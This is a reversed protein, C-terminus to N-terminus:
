GNVLITELQKLREQRLHTDLNGLFADLMPRISIQWLIQVPGDKKFLKLRKVQELRQFHAYIDIAEAFFSHGIQWSEGLGEMDKIAENMAQANEVLKQLEDAKITLGYANMKHQLIQELQKADFGYFLWVFRRRLAFDIRELSFDIENMTGIVYLNEPVCLEFDGIPLHITENRNELASFVEGFVRSLDVRNIEDLILVHPSSDQRVKDLLKLFYGKEAVTQGAKIQIGAVFDEYTYNPHLQLRHIRTEFQPPSTFYTQIHAPERLYDRTLFVKALQKASHTKGTGPPGYLVLARKYDLAQLASFDQGIQGFDWAQVFPPEYFLIEQNSRGTMARLKERIAFLQEDRNLDQETESLLVQLGEVIKRQKSNSAINEYHEPKALHLLLNPMALQRDRFDNQVGLLIDPVHTGDGYKVDLCIAEIWERVKEQGLTEDPELREKARIILLFVFLILSIEQHKSTAHSQGPLIFGDTFASPKLQGADLFRQANNQKTAKSISRVPLAWLWEAHSFVAKTEEDANAFQQLVKDQFSESGEKFQQFFLQWANETATRTFCDTQDQVLFNKGQILFIDVFADFTQYVVQASKDNLKMKNEGTLNM